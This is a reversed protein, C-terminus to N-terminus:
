AVALFAEVLTADKANVIHEAAFGRVVRSTAIFFCPSSDAYSAVRAGRGV